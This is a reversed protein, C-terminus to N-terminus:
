RPTDKNIRKIIGFSVIACRHGCIVDNGVKTETIRNGAKVTKGTM